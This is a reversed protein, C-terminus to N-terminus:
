DRPSPSTYLLCLLYLEENATRHVGNLWEDHDVILTLISNYANTIIPATWAEKVTVAANEPVAIGFMTTHEAGNANATAEIAENAITTNM